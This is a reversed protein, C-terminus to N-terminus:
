EKAVYLWAGHAFAAIIKLSGDKFVLTGRDSVGTQYVGSITLPPKGDPRYVTYRM